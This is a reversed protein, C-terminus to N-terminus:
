VHRIGTPHEVLCDLLVLLTGFEGSILDLIFPAQCYNIALLQLIVGYCRERMGTVNVAQNVKFWELGNCLSLISLIWSCTAIEKWSNKVTVYEGGSNFVIKSVFHEQIEILPLEQNPSDLLLKCLRSALVDYKHHEQVHFRKLRVVNTIANSVNKM